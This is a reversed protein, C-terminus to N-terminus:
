KFLFEPKINIMLYSWTNTFTSSEPAVRKAYAMSKTADMVSFGWELTTVNNLAYTTVFDLENGLHKQIASGYEDKQDRALAFYHVDLAATFLKSKSTFKSKLYLDNLGGAPSGTSAYFYDMYGWFKHPTGYLPDFRHNTASPSFADNGSVYDWGGTYALNKPAYSLSATSTFADLLLGDRDHGQQLYAGATYTLTKRSNLSGAALLGTTIRANVGKARFSMGYVYGTDAGSINRVSDLAYKGFQDALFLLSVRSSRFTRAAYLYQMAKYTQTIGNTGPANQWLPSGTKASVGSAMTLPIMGAPTVTLNGKSDKVYPSVNAPTYYTGNYNFADNHQNFGAGLDVQWGRHLLKVVVADHRRGQQLWDLNGLLRSDDYVVEQRGIRIGIYDVPSRKLSTDKKNSLVLEGWAEHVGLRAGDAQSITSADQGWVRVDQLSTRVVLRSSSYHLTLRTRQSTFFAPDYSVPRLTGAGDRYETRTRVQGTLGLQANSVSASCCFIIGAGARFFHWKMYM